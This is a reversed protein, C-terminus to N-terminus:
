KQSDGPMLSLVELARKSHYQLCSESIEPIESSEKPAEIEKPKEEIEAQEPEFAKQFWLQMETEDWSQSEFTQSEEVLQYDDKEAEEAKLEIEVFNETEAKEAEEAKLGNPFEIEVFNETEAAKQIKESSAQVHEGKRKRQPTRKQFVLTENPKEQSDTLDVQLMWVSQDMVSVDDFTLSM